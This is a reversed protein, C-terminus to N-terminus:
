GHLMRPMVRYFAMSMWLVPKGMEYKKVKLPWLRFLSITNNNLVITNQNYYRFYMSRYFNTRFIGAFVCTNSTLRYSELRQKVGVGGTNFRRFLCTEAQMEKHTLSRNVIGTKRVGSCESIFLM